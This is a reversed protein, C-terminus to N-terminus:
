GPIWHLQSIDTNLVAWMSFVWIALLIGGVAQSPTHRKLYIRSWATAIPLVFLVALYPQRFIYILLGICLTVAFTHISIKWFLTIAFAVAFGSTALILYPTIEDYGFYHSLYTNICLFVLLLAFVRPRQRRDTIDFNSILHYKWFMYMVLLSAITIGFSAVLWQVSDILTKPVFKIYLAICIALVGTLPSIIISVIEAAKQTRM